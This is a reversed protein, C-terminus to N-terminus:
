IARKLLSICSSCGGNGELDSLIMHNGMIYGMPSNYGVSDIFEEISTESPKGNSM